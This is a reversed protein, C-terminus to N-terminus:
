SLTPRRAKANLNFPPRGYAEVMLGISVLIQM